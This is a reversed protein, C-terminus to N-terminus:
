MRLSRAAEEMFFNRYSDPADVINGEQDIRLSHIKVDLTQPEFWLISVDDPKLPSKGDRVDMRVRDILHDSHTEIVLQRKESAIQCFLSGLAAQARPHLHVEPQQLLFLFRADERLLETIVPLAQSLGYGMDILNHSPSKPEGGIKRILVQFPESGRKGFRKISIEDFLGSERGFDELKSRSIQGLRNTVFFFTPSICQFTTVKRTQIPVPLITLGAHSQAYPRVQLLVSQTLCLKIM